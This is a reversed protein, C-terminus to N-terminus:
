YKVLPIFNEKPLSDKFLTVNDNFNKYAVPEGVKFEGGQIYLVGNYSYLKEKFVEEFYWRTLSYVDNFRKSKDLINIMELGIDHYYNNKLITNIKGIKYRDDLIEGVNLEKLKQVMTNEAFLEQYKNELEEMCFGFDDISSISNNDFILKINIHDPRKLAVSNWVWHVGSDRDILLNFLDKVIVNLDTFPNDYYNDSIQDRNSIDIKEFDTNLTFAGYDTRPKELTDDDIKENSEVMTFITLHQKYRRVVLTINKYKFVSWYYNKGESEKIKNLNINDLSKIVLCNKHREMQRIIYKLPEKFKSLTKLEYQIYRTIYEKEFKFIEM